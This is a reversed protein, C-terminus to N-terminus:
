LSATMRYLMHRDRSQCGVMIALAHLLLSDPEHSDRHRTSDRGPRARPSDRLSQCQVTRDWLKREPVGTRPRVRGGVPREGPGRGRGRGSSNRHATHGCVCSSTRRGRTRPLWCGPSDLGTESTVKRRGLGRGLRQLQRSCAHLSALAPPPCCALDAQSVDQSCHSENM